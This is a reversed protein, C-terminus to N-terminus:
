NLSMRKYWLHVGQTDRFLVDKLHVAKMESEQAPLHGIEGTSCSRLSAPRLLCLREPQYRQPSGSAM